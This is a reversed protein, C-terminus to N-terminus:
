IEPTSRRDPRSSARSTSGQLRKTWDVRALAVVGIVMM